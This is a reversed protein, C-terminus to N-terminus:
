GFSSNAQIGFNDRELAPKIDNVIGDADTANTHVNLNEIHTQQSKSNDVAGGAQPSSTNARTPAGVPMPLYNPKQRAIRAAAGGRAAAEGWENAPVEWERSLMQAGGAASPNSRLKAGQAAYPGDKSLEWLAYDLQEKRTAEVLHHGTRQQFLTARENHWNALGFSTYKGTKKDFDGKSTTEGSSEAAFQAVISSAQERTLKGNDMLYQLDSEILDNGGKYGAQSAVNPVDPMNSGGAGGAAQNAARRGQSRASDDTGATGRDGSLSIPSLGFAEAIVNYRTIVWDLAGGLSKKIAAMISPGANYVAKVLGDWFDGWMKKLSDTLDKWDRKIDESTGFFVDYILRFQAVMFKVYDGFLDKLANIIPMYISNKIEEWAQRAAAVIKKWGDSVQQYFEGFQAAGGKNWSDWDDYFALLAASAVAITTLIPSFAFSIALLGAAVIAAWKKLEEPNKQLYVFIDQLKLLMKNLYPEVMTLLMRGLTEFSQFVGHMNYQLRQAADAQEKTVTGWQKQDAMFKNFVKDSQILINILDDSLQMGHGIAMARAADMGQFARHLDPLLDVATRIQGNMGTLSLNVNPAFAQLARLYPLVSSEGTLSLQQLSQNLSNISGAISQASGGTAVGINQWKSLENTSTGLFVSLRGIAASTQILDQTFAKVGKGATFAAFLLLVQGRLQSLFNAAGRASAEIAKGSVTAAEKTKLMQSAAEKSGKSFNTPDLGLTVILSDVVTAM